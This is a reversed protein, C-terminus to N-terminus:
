LIIPVTGGDASWAAGTVYSARDSLLVRDRRRDGRARLAGSRGAAGVKMLIEDRKGQQDALRRRGDVRRDCDSRAHHRQLPHPRAHLDAVLRRFRFCEGSEDGLVRCRSAQVSQPPRRSTSSRGRGKSSWRPLAARLARVASMVNIKGHASWVEDTLDDWTHIEAWGVNNVLCDV